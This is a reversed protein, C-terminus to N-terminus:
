RKVVFRKALKVDKSTINIIYIGSAVENLPIKYTEGTSTLQDSTFSKVRKGSIDFLEFRITEAKFGTTVVDLNNETPNMKLEVSPERAITNQVDDFAQLQTSAAFVLTLILIAAIYVKKM